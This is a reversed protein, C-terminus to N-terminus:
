FKVQPASQAQADAKFYSRETFGMLRAVFVTPVSKLKANYAQAADNYDKRAVALRNETGALEDQLQIFNTNAKLQPYNESIALLRSLAGSLEGNAQAAETVNRAGALRARANAVDTFVQSEHASYGKVTNVLNPILDSRRQLQTEVQSWKGNVNENATVVGNYSGFIWGALLLVVAFFVVLGKKM